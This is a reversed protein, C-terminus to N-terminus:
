SLMPAGQCRPDQPGLPRHVRLSISERFGQCLQQSTSLDGLDGGIYGLPEISQGLGKFGTLGDQGTVVCGGLGGVTGQLTGEGRDVEVGLAEHDQTPPVHWLCLTTVDPERTAPYKTAQRTAVGDGFLSSLSPPRLVTSLLLATSYGSAV